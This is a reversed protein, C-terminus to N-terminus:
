GVLVVTEGELSLWESVSERLGDFLSVACGLIVGLITSTEESVVESPIDSIGTLDPAKAWVGSSGVDEDILGLSNLVEVFDLVGEDSGELPGGLFSNETFLVHTANAELNKIDGKVSIGDVSSSTLDDGSSTTHEISADQGGLWTELLWDVEDFDLAGFAGDRTDVWHQITTTSVDDGFLLAWSCGEVVDLSVERHQFGKTEGSIEARVGRSLGEWLAHEIMPLDELSVGEFSSGLGVLDHEGRSLSLSGGFFDWWQVSEVITKLCSL